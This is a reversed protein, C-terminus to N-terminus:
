TLGLQARISYAYGAVSNQAAENLHIADVQAGGSDRTVYEDRLTTYAPAIGVIERADFVPVGGARLEDCYSAIALGNASTTSQGAWPQVPIAVVGASKAMRLITNSRTIAAKYSNADASENTSWVKFFLHTVGAPNMLLNIAREHFLRSKQGAYAMNVYAAPVGGANLLAVLKAVWGNVNGGFQPVVSSAVWGQEISDSCVAVTMIPKGRLYYIVDVCPDWQQGPAGPEGGATYDSGAWYGSYFELVSSSVPNASASGTEAVNAAPPNVGYIRLMLLPPNAPTDARDLSALTMIDSYVRGEILTAAANSGSANGVTTNASGGGPNRTDNPNTTGFTVPTWAVAVNSADVPSYGNNYKASPAASVKFTNASSTAGHVVVQVADFHAPARKTRHFTFTGSANNAQGIVRDRSANSRIRDGSVPAIDVVWPPGSINMTM